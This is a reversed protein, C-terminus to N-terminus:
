FHSEICRGRFSWNKVHVRKATLRQLIMYLTYTCMKKKLPLHIPSEYFLFVIIFFVFNSFIPFIALCKTLVVVHQLFMFECKSKRNTINRRHLKKRKNKHKFRIILGQIQDFVMFSWLYCKLCSPCLPISSM